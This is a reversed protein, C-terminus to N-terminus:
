RKSKKRNKKKNQRELKRKKKRRERDAASEIPAMPEPAYGMLRARAMAAPRCPRPQLGQPPGAMQGALAAPDMGGGGPGAARAAADDGLVDEMGKGQLKRLQFLQKIGPLRSLLGPADGISRMVGRMAQYQKLLDKVEKESRGSGKRSASRMRSENLLDPRLREATTMSDVM